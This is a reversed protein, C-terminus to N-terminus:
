RGDPHMLESFVAKQGSINMVSGSSPRVLNTLLPTGESPNSDDTGTTGQQLQLAVQLNWLVGGMSPRDRSREAVCQEATEAFKMFCQPNIKGVLYPDIIDGFVGKRQCSLAWERLGVQEEPLETHV